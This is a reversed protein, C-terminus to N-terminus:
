NEKEIIKINEKAPQFNPDKKLIEKWISKAKEKEGIMAYCLGLDNLIELSDPKLDLVKQYLIIAKRYNGITKYFFALNQINELNLPNLNYAINLHKEALEKNGIYFYSIGLLLHSFDDNPDLSIAIKLFDISKQYNGNEYFIRGLAVYAQRYLPNKEICTKLINLIESIDKKRENYYITALSCLAYPNYPDLELIKNYFEIALDTKKLNAYCGAIATYIKKKNKFHPEVKLFINLANEYDKNRYKIVGINYYIKENEFGLKLTKEYFKVENNWDYNRLITRTGYLTFILITLILKLKEKNIKEILLVFYIFFGISGLYMWHERLNGNLPIITNSHFLFNV